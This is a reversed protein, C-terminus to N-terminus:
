RAKAEDWLNQDIIRLEPVETIMWEAKPNPRAQRKSTQPDTLFTQRNWVM